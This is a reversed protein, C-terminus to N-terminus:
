VTRAHDYEVGLEPPIAAGCRVRAALTCRCCRGHGVAETKTRVHRPSRGRTRVTRARSASDNM